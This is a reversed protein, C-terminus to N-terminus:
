ERFKHITLGVENGVIGTFENGNGGLTIKVLSM